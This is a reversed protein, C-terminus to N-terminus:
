KVTQLGLTITIFKHHNKFVRQLRRVCLVCFIGTLCLRLVHVNWFLNYIGCQQLAESQTKNENDIVLPFTPSAESPICFDASEGYVPMFVIHKYQLSCILSAACLLLCWISSTKRLFGGLSAGHASFFGKM